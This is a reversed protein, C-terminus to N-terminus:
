RIPFDPAAKKESLSEQIARKVDRTRLEPSLEPSEYLGTEQIFRRVASPILNLQGKRVHTSRIPLSYHGAMFDIIEPMKEKKDKELPDQWNDRLLIKFHVSPYNKIEEELIQAMNAGWRRYTDTGVAVVFSLTRFDSKGVISDLIRVGNKTGFDSPYRLSIRSTQILPYFLDSLQKSMAHRTLADTKSSKWPKGDPGPANEGIPTLFLAYATRKGHNKDSEYVLADLLLEAHAFHPPDMTGPVSIIMVEDSAAHLQFRDQINEPLADFFVMEGSLVRARIISLDHKFKLRMATLMQEDEASRVHRSLLAIENQLRYAISELVRLSAPDATLGTSKLEGNQWVFNEGNKKTIHVEVTEPEKREFFDFCQADAVEMIEDKKHDYVHLQASDDEYVSILVDYQGTYGFYYGRKIAIPFLPQAPGGQIFSKLAAETEKLITPNVVYCRATKTFTSPSKKLHQVYDSWPMWELGAVKPNTSQIDRRPVKVFYLYIFERNYLDPDEEYKKYIRLETLGGISAIEIEHEAIGLEEMLGRKLGAILDGRDKALIQTALSQDRKGKAIDVVNSRRQVLVEISGGAGERVIYAQIGVHFDGETHVNQREKYAIVHGIAHDVVPILEGDKADLLDSGTITQHKVHSFESEDIILM